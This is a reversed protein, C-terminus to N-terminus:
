CEPSARLSFEGPESGEELIKSTLSSLCYLLRRRCLCPPPSWTRTVTSPSLEAIETTLLCLSTELPLSFLPDTIWAPALEAWLTTVTGKPPLLDTETTPDSVSLDTRWLTCDCTDETDGVGSRNAQATSM